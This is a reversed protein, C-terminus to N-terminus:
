AAPQVTPAPPVAPPAPQVAPASVQPPMAEGAMPQPQGGGLMQQLFAATLKEIMPITEAADPLSMLRAVEPAFAAKLWDPANALYANIADLQALMNTSQAAQLALVVDFEAQTIDNAVGDPTQQNITIFQLGRGSDTVRVAKEETYSDQILSMLVRGCTEQAWDRNQFLTFLATQGQNQLREIATGSHATGSRGLLEQTVGASDYVQQQAQAIMEMEVQNSASTDVKLLKGGRLAGDAVDIFADNQAMQRRARDANTFAGKEAFWSNSLARKMASSRRAAFEKQPDRAGRVVGCPKGNEDEYAWTPVFPFRGHNYPSEADSLLLDGAHVACRINCFMGTEPMQADGSLIAESLQLANEETLTFVRGDRFKVYDRAEYVRYWREVAMVMGQGRDLMHQDDGVPFMQQGHNFGSYNAPLRPADGNHMNAYDSSHALRQYSHDDDYLGCMTLIERRYQPFLRALDEGRMWLARHVDLADSWDPEVSAPDPYILEPAVRKGFIRNAAPDSTFGLETYGCGVLGADRFTRAQIREFQIQDTEFKLLKTAAEASEVQKPTRPLAKLDSRTTAEIGCILNLMRRILEFRVAPQKRDFFTMLEYPTWIKGAEYERDIKAEVDWPARADRVLSFRRIHSALDQNAM